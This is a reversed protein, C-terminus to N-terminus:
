AIQKLRYVHSLIVAVAQYFKEPITQGVKVGRFMARALPPDEMLPVDNERAIERIRLAVEDVGKAVVTPAPDIKRDYRLAVSYHTPNVVIVDAQPVAEMMRHRLLDTRARKQRQKIHPDGEARKREDEVEQKTMKNREEHSYRQWFVDIVAIAVAFSSVLLLLLLALDAVESAAAAIPQEHLRLLSHWRHGMVLYMIGGLVLLKVAAFATKVLAQANFVKKFNSTPNIKELKFGIVQNSVKVGIQSYGVALTVLVVTLVLTVFPWLVTTAVALIERQIYPIDDIRRGVGLTFGMRMVHSFSDVLWDGIAWVMLAASLMVAGQVLERSLPTDGKQRSQALRAPTPKETKGQDDGFLPM